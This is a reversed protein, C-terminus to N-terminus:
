SKTESVPLSPSGGAALESLRSFLLPRALTMAQEDPRLRKLAEDLNRARSIKAEAVAEVPDVDGVGEDEIMDVLAMHAKRRWDESVLSRMDPRASVTARHLPRKSSASRGILPRDREEPIILM